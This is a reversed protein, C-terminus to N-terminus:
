LQTKPTVITRLKAIARHLRVSVVNSTEGLVEAIEHPSLGDVYRMLIVERHDVDLGKLAQLAMRGDITDQLSERIDVSPEWYKKESDAGDQGNPANYEELSIDNNHRKRSDDIVLNNAIKYILAKMNRVENGNIIYQWAKLFTDQMLEQARERNYVRYYCHRFIPNALDTYYKM